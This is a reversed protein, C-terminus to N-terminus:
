YSASCMFLFIPPFGQYLTICSRLLTTIQIILVPYEQEALFTGSNVQYTVVAQTTM